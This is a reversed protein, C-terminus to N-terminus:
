YKDLWGGTSKKNIKRREMSPGYMGAKIKEEMFRDALESTMFPKTQWGGQVGGEETPDFYSVEYEGQLPQKESFKLEPLSPTPLNISIKEVPKSLERRDVKRKLKPEQLIYPQVPKKYIPTHYDEKDVKELNFAIPKNGNKTFRKIQADFWLPYSNSKLMYSEKKLPTPYNNYLNLSDQYAKIKRPDDTYIPSNVKRGKQAMPYETVKKGKFKYEQEPFMMKTDGEDSIGLVPYPVGQMTIENSDIETIEGPHAWQGRDDKIVSGDRSITKPKWDLGHQYYTMGNEASAKTKKAYPGNSPIGKTRAYTFGVSGPLSGGMAFQGGWAPSYNRGVNSYGEGIWNDPASSHGENANIEKGYKDLRGGSKFKNYNLGFVDDQYYDTAEDILDPEYIRHAENEVTGPTEYPSSEVAKDYDKIVNYYSTKAYAPLDNFIWDGIVDFKGQKDFQKKHALESVYTDFYHRNSKPNITITNTFPNYHGSTGSFLGSGESESINVPGYKKALQDFAYKESDSLKEDYFKQTAKDKPYVVVEPLTMKSTVLIDNKDFYGISGKGEPHDGFMYINRYAPDSTDYDWGDVTVKEGKQAKTTTTNNDKYKDLWGKM